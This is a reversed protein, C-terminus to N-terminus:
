LVVKQRLENVVVIYVGRPFSATELIETGSAATQTKLAQGQLNYVSIRSGISANSVVINGDRTQLSARGYTEVAVNEIGSWDANGQKVQITATTGYSGIVVNASRGSLGDPLPDTLLYCYLVGNEEYVDNEFAIESIWDPASEVWVEDMDYTSAITVNNYDNGDVTFYANGGDVPATVQKTQGNVILTTYAGEIMVSLDYGNTQDTQSRFYVLFHDDDLYTYANGGDEFNRTFTISCNVGPQDFGRVVFAFEDDLVLDIPTTLTTLEDYEEFVFRAFYIKTGNQMTWSVILDEAYIEATYLTDGLRKLNDATSHRVKTIAATLKATGELPINNNSWLFVGISRAFLPAQPKEFFEGAAEIKAGSYTGTGFGDGNTFNLYHQGQILDAATLILEKGAIGLAYPVNGAEVLAQGYYHNAESAGSTVKVIPMNFSGTFGPTFLGNDQADKGLAYKNGTSSLIYWEIAGYDASQNRFKWEVNGHGIFMPVYGNGETTLGGLLTGTPRYYNASLSAAPAALSNVPIGDKSLHGVPEEAKVPVTQKLDTREIKGTKPYGLESASISVRQAITVSVSAACVVTLLLRTKMQLININFKIKIAKLSDNVNECCVM